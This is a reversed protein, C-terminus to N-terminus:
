KIGSAILFISITATEEFTLEDTTLKTVNVGYYDDWGDM